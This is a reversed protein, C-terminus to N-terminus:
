APVGTGPRLAVPTVAGLVAGVQGGVSWMSGASRVTRGLAVRSWLSGRRRHGTRRRARVLGAPSFLKPMTFCRWLHAAGDGRDM